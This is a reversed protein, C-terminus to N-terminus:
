GPCGPMGWVGGARNYCRQHINIILTHDNLWTPEMGEGVYTSQGTAVDLIMVDQPFFDYHPIRTGDPSWSGGNIAGGGVARALVRQYTGDANALCLAGWGECAYSLLSGDPSLRPNGFADWGGGQGSMVRVTEGGGVPVMRIEYEGHNGSADFRIAGYVISSGDPTFSPLQAEWPGLDAAPDPLTPFTIQTSAGTALDLVFLSDPEGGQHGTYAIKSGDPSWAPSSAAGLTVQEIETGDLNAVFIQSKGNADPASYALRSGDPSAAYEGTSDNTRFDTGVISEPLPTM